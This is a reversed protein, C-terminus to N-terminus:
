WLQLARELQRLLAPVIVIIPKAQRRSDYGGTRSSRLALFSRFSVPLWSSFDFSADGYVGPCSKLSEM